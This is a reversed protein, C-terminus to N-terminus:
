PSVARHEATELVRRVVELCDLDLLSSEPHERLFPDGARVMEQIRAREEVNLWWWTRICIATLLNQEAQRRMALEFPEGASAPPLQVSLTADSIAIIRRRLGSDIGAVLANVPANM